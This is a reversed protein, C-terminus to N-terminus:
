LDEFSIAEGPNLRMSMKKNYLRYTPKAIRSKVNDIESVCFNYSYIIAEEVSLEDQLYRNFQSVNNFKFRTCIPEKKLLEKGSVEYVLLSDGVKFVFLYKAFLSETEIFLPQTSYEKVLSKLSVKYEEQFDNSLLFDDIQNKLHKLFGTVIASSVKIKNLIKYYNLDYYLRMRLRNYKDELIRKIPNDDMCDGGINM